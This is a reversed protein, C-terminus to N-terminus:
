LNLLTLLPFFESFPHSHLVCEDHYFGSRVPNEGFKRDEVADSSFIHQKYFEGANPPLTMCTVDRKFFSPTSHTHPTITLPWRQSDVM